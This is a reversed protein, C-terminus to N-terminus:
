STRLEEIFCIELLIEKFVHNLKLLILFYYTWSENNIFAHLTSEEYVKPLEPKNIQFDTKPYKLLTTAIVKKIKM